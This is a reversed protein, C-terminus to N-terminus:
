LSSFNLLTKTPPLGLCTPSLFPTMSRAMVRFVMQLPAASSLAMTTPLGQLPPPPLHPPPLTTPCCPTAVQTTTTTIIITTTTTQPALPTLVPDLDQVLVTSVTSVSRLPDEMLSTVMSVPLQMTLMLQLTLSSSVLVRQAVRPNFSMQMFFPVQLKFCARLNKGLSLFPFTQFMSRPQNQPLLQPLLSQLPLPWIPVDTMAMLPAPLLLRIKLNEIKVFLSPDAMSQNTPSSKLPANQKKLPLMNLLVAVRPNAMLSPLFM